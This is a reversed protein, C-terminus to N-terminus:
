LAKLHAKFEEVTFPGSINKGTKFDREDQDIIKELYPTMKPLVSFNLERSRVFQKLSANIIASLTLGMEEALAQASEKVEKDTKINIM